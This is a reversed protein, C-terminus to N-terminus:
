NRMLLELDMIQVPETTETIREVTFENARLYSYIGPLIAAADESCSFMLNKRAGSERPFMATIAAMSGDSYDVFSEVSEWFVLGHNEATERAIESAEEASVIVTRVKAAEFLLASIELYEEFTGESLWIGITHGTGSIRRILGPDEFIDAASVFFCALFGSAAQIDLLDLIWGASGASVDFFSLHITVDSFDPTPLPEEPTLPSVQPDGPGPLYPAPMFHELFSERIANRNMGVATPGNIASDSFIRLAHMQREPIIDRSVSIVEYSLGFFECVQRLPVYFRRGIRRAAPWPLRAGDQNVTRTQGPRTHFDIYRNGRYLRVHELEDSGVGWVELEALVSVPVFINNGIVLPMTEDTFPLKTENVLVFYPTVAAQTDVPILAALMIVILMLFFIRKKM